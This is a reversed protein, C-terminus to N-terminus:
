EQVQEHDEKMKRLRAEIEEDLEQDHEQRAKMATLANHMYRERLARYDPEAINGLQYDFEVDRLAARASQEREDLPTTQTDEVAVPEPVPQKNLVTRQFLPFLVYALAALGLVVSIGIAM